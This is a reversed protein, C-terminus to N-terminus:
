RTVPELIIAAGGGSAMKITLADSRGVNRVTREVDNPDSGDTWM